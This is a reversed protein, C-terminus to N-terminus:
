HNFLNGKYIKQENIILTGETDDQTTSISDNFTKIIDFNEVYDGNTSDNSQSVSRAKNVIDITSTVRNQESPTITKYYKDHVNKSHGLHKHMLHTTNEDSM